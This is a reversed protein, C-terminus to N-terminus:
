RNKFSCYLQRYGYLFTKCKLCFKPKVCDYWLKYIVNKSLHLISLDLYVLRNQLILTKRIEIALLVVFLPKKTHYNPKSVLNEMTKGFVTNNILKFFKKKAKQILKTNMYNYSKLFVNQNFKIMRNLKKLIFDM